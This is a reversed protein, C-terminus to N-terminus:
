KKRSAAEWEQRNTTYEKDLKFFKTDKIRLKLKYQKKYRKYKLVTKEQPLVYVRDNKKLYALEYEGTPKQGYFFKNKKSSEFPIFQHVDKLYYGVQLPANKLKVMLTTDSESFILQKYQDLPISHEYFKNYKDEYVVTSDSKTLPFNHSRKNFYYHVNDVVGYSRIVYSSECEVSDEFSKIPKTKDTIFESRREKLEDPFIYTRKSTTPPKPAKVPKDINIMGEYVCFQYRNNVLDFEPKIELPKWYIVGNITDPEWLLMETDIEKSSVNFCILQKERPKGDCPNFNFDFTGATILAVGENTEFVMNRSRAEEATYYSKINPQSQCAGCPSFYDLPVTAEANGEKIAIKGDKVPLVYVDVRRARAPDKVTTAQEEGYNTEFFDLKLTKIKSLFTKVSDIRQQSLRLNYRVSATSDAYGYLEILYNTGTLKKALINLNKISQESLTSENHEFYISVKECMKQAHGNSISFLFVLIAIQKM